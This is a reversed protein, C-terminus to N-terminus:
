PWLWLTNQGQSRGGLTEADFRRFSAGHWRGRLPALKDLKLHEQGAPSFHPPTVISPPLRDNYDAFDNLTRIGRQIMNERDQESFRPGQDLLVVKKGAAALKGALLVGAIGAGAIFYDAAVEKTM